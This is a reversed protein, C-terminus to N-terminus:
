EHLFAHIVEFVHRPQGLLISFHNAEPVEVLKARALASVMEVADARPLVEDGARAIPRGSRLVLVPCRVAPYFSRTPYADEAALEMEPVPRPVRHRVLGDPGVEVDARLYAEVDWTWPTYTWGARMEALFAKVSPYRRDLRRWFARLAEVASPSTQVPPDILVLRDVADGRRAALALAIKGGLSWGVVAVRELKLARLLRDVDDVHQGVNYGTEPKDSGGRGRLDVAVIRHDLVLTAALGAFAYANATM